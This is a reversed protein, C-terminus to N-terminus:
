DGDRQEKVLWAAQHVLNITADPNTPAGSDVDAQLQPETIEQGSVKTLLQAADSLPLAMPDIPTRVHDTM